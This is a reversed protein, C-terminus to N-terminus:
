DDDGDSLDNILEELREAALETERSKLRHIVRAVGIEISEDTDLTYEDVMEGIRELMLHDFMLAARDNYEKRDGPVEILTWIIRQHGKNTRAWMDPAKIKGNILGDGPCRANMSSNIREKVQELDPATFVNLVSLGQHVTIIYQNNM